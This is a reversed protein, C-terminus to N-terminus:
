TVHVVGSGLTESPFKNISNKSSFFFSKLMVYMYICNVIGTRLFLLAQSNILTACYLLELAIPSPGRLKSGRIVLIIGSSAGCEGVVAVHPRQDVLVHAFRKVRRIKLPVSAHPWSDMVM